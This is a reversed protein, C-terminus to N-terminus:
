YMLSAVLLPTLQLVDRKNHMRKYLARRYNSFKSPTARNVAEAIKKVADETIDDVTERMDIDICAAEIPESRLLQSSANLRLRLRLRLRLWM